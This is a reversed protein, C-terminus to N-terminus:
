VVPLILQFQSEFESELSLILLKVTLIERGNIDLDNVRVDRPESATVTTGMIESTFRVNNQKQSFALLSGLIEIVLFSRM